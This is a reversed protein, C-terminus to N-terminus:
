AAPGSVFQYSNSQGNLLYIGEMRATPELTRSVSCYKGLSLDIAREVRASELPGSFNYVIKINRFISPEVGAEREGDVDIWFSEVKQKQKALISLIDMASCSGLAMLMLEMPRVGLDQGGIAQSGDIDVTRGNGGTARLHVQDNVRELRIKVSVGPRAKEGAPIPSCKKAFFSSCAHM